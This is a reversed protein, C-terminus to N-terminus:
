PFVTWGGFGGSEFSEAFVPPVDSSSWQPDSLEVQWDLGRWGHNGLSSSDILQQGSGEDLKWYGVIRPDNESFLGDYDGAVQAASRPVGWLCAEDLIGSYRFSALPWAGLKIAGVASSAWGISHAGSAIPQGNQYLSITPDDYVCALHHWIGSSLSGLPTYVYTSNPVSVACYWRDGDLGIEWSADGGAGEGMVVTRYGGLSPKVWVEVTFFRGLDFDGNDDPITAEDYTGDFQLGYEQAPLSGTGAPLACCFAALM